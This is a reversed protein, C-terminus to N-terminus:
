IVIILLIDTVTRLQARSAFVTPEATTPTALLSHTPSYPTYHELSPAHLGAIAACSTGHDEPM